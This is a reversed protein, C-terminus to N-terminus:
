SVKAWTLTRRLTLPDSKFGRRRRIATQNSRGKQPELDAQVLVAQGLGALHVSARM